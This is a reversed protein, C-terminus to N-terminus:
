AVRIEMCEDDDIMKYIGGDDYVLGDAGCSECTVRTGTFFSGSEPSSDLGANCNTCEVEFTDHRGSFKKTAM